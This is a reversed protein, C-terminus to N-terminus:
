MLQALLRLEYREPHQQHLTVAVDSLWAIIVRAENAVHIMKACANSIVLAICGHLM